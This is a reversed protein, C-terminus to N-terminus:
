GEDLVFREYLKALQKDIKGEKDLHELSLKIVRLMDSSIIYEKPPIGDEIFKVTKGTGDTHLAVAKEEELTFSLEDQFEEILKMTKYRASKPMHHVLLMRELSSLKTTKSSNFDLVKATREPQIKIKEQSMVQENRYAYMKGDMTKLLECNPGYLHVEIGRGLAIGLWFTTSPKEYIYKSGQSMNLGYTNIVDYGQYIALAIMYDLSNGFYDTGFFQRVENLPYELSSPIDDFKRTCYVPLGRENCIKTVLNNIDEITDPPLGTAKQCAERGEKTSFDHKYLLERDMFFCLDINEDKYISDNVGWLEMEPPALEWGEGKAVLGVEKM